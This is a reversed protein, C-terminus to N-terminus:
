QCTSCPQWHSLRDNLRLCERWSQLHDRRRGWYWRKRWCFWACTWVRRQDLCCGTSTFIKRRGYGGFECFTPITKQANLWYEARRGWVLLAGPRLARFTLAFCAPETKEAFAMLQGSADLVAIGMPKYNAARAASRAGQIIQNAQDLTLQSM